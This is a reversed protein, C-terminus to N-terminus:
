RGGFAGEYRHLKQQLERMERTDHEIAGQLMQIRSQLGPGSEQSEMVRRAKEIWGQTQQIRAELIAREDEEPTSASGDSWTTKEM